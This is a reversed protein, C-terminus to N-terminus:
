PERDPLLTAKKRLLDWFEDAGQPQIFDIPKERAQVEVVDGVELAIEDRGDISVLADHAAEVQVTVHHQPGVVSSRLPTLYAAIPTVILNRSTPEVIPGGASFSYGTSGTPSAVVVGDCTYRAVLSDSVRVVVRMVRAHAGRVIAAENLALHVQGGTAGGAPFIRAELMLRHELRFQGAKLQGLVTELQDKEMKSLFGVKGVNVGLIPVEVDAISRAARLFTGDGGLVVVADTVALLGPDSPAEGAPAAWAEVGNERCWALARERMAPSAEQTPNWAFGLRRM